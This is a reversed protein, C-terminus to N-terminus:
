CNQEQKQRQGKWGRGNVYWRLFGGNLGPEVRGAGAIGDEDAAAGVVLVIERHCGAHRESPLGPLGRAHGDIGLVERPREVQVADTLAGRDLPQANPM